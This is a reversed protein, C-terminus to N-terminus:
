QASSINSLSNKKFSRRLLLKDSRNFTRIFILVFLYIVAGFAIVILIHLGNLFYIGSCMVMAGILPKFYNRVVILHEVRRNLCYFSLVLSSFICIVSTIAAGVHAYIPILILNLIANLGLSVINLWMLTNVQGVTALGFGVIEKVFIFSIALAIIRLVIVSNEYKTGFFLHIIEPALMFVGASIAVGLIISIKVTFNFSERFRETSEHYQRSFIPYAVTAIATPIILLSFFLDNAAPTFWGVYIPGKMKSLMIVDLNFYLSHILGVALFPFASKAITRVYSFDVNFELKAIKRMLLSFGMMSGVCLAIVRSLIVQLLTGEFYVIAAIFLLLLSSNLIVMLSSYQMREFAKFISSVSNGFTMFVISLSFITIYVIIEKPYGMLYVSSILLFISIFSFVAKILFTSAFYKPALSRDRAVDRIILDNLGFDAIVMFIFAYSLVFCYKGYAEPGLYRAVIITSVMGLIRSFVDGILIAIINKIARHVSIM